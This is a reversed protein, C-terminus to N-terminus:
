PAAPEPKVLQQLKLRAGALKKLAAESPEGPALKRLSTAIFLHDEKAYDGRRAVVVGRIALALEHIGAEQCAEGLAKLSEDDAEKRLNSVKQWAPMAKTLLPKLAAIAEKDVGQYAKIQFPDHRRSKEYAALVEPPQPEGGIIVAGPKPLEKGAAALHQFYTSYGVEYYAFGNQPWMALAEEYKALAGAYDGADHLKIGEAVIANPKERMRNVHAVLELFARKVNDPKGPRQWGVALVHWARIAEGDSLLLGAHLLNLGHDGPAIDYYARWFNPNRTVLADVDLEPWADPALKEDIGKAVEDYDALWAAMGPFETLDNSKMGKVVAAAMLWGMRRAENIEPTSTKGAIAQQEGGAAGCLAVILVGCAISTPIAKMPVEPM